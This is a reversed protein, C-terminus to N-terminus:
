RGPREIKFSVMKALVAAFPENLFQQHNSEGWEHFVYPIM